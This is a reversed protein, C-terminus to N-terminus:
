TQRLSSASPEENNWDLEVPNPMAPWHEFRPVREVAEQQNFFAIM